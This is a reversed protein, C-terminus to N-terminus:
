SAIMFASNVTGKLSLATAQVAGLFRLATIFHSVLFYKARTSLQALCQIKAKNESGANV